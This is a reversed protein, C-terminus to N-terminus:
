GHYILLVVGKYTAFKLINLYSLIPISFFDM